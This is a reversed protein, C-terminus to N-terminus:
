ALREVESWTRAPIMGGEVLRRRIRAAEKRWPTLDVKLYVAKHRALNLPENEQEARRVEQSFYGGADLCAQEVAQQLAPPLAAYKAENVAVALNPCVDGLLTVYRGYRCFGLPYLHAKSTPLLDFRGERWAAQVETWPVVVPEAGLDRWFRALIDSEFIRVRLGRVEEPTTVPRNSVLVWELGRRWNWRPNILRIGAQLLPRNVEERFFDGELFAALHDDDRFAYPCTAVNVAPAFHHFFSLEGIYLDIIGQRLQEVQAPASGLQTAKLSVLSVLGETRRHVERIFWSLGRSEPGAVTTMTGLVRPIEEERQFLYSLPRDLVRCLRSLVGISLTAKGTEIKSIQGQSVGARAALDVARLGKAQRLEKIRAGVLSQIQAEEGPLTNRDKSDAM